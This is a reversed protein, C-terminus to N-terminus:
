EFLALVDDPQRGSVAGALLNRGSAFVGDEAILYVGAGWVTQYRGAARQEPSRAPILLLIVDDGPLLLPDDM